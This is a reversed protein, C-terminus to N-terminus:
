HDSGHSGRVECDLEGEHLTVRVRDGTRVEAARSVIATRAANWCVAYGRALVALPSLSDLRGALATVRGRAQDRRRQAAATLRGDAAALRARMAALQRRVDRADLRVRWAHHERSRRAVLAAATRRLAHALESVHRGQMAVRTQWGALGRRSTLVHVHHRRRQIEGRMASQLRQGLRDIHASFQEHAAVVMEAAASPTPARLDAVFDAITVDVEHGVASIVPVPAAAIARALVEENFAWLDEISGGGRGVIVVDVGEVRAIARLARAIDDAANEGQVRVPRVVLHATPHRRDLVKIIDKLAAGDLSTVIGIKRPLAPIRRKRAPDFLGEAQLRRKLQEFALQLAGRGHPDLHECVLQYEGKPEYVSLQGRAVVHLGDELKFKLYRHASRFMVAKLQAGADKLTFYVHGTNWVRCNSIEGEVWIEGFGTELATRIGSTLETVTLVRRRARPAPRAAATGAGPEEEFPVDFLNPM